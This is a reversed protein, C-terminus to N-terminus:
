YGTATFPVVLGSLDDTSGAEILAAVPDTGDGYFALVKPASTSRNWAAACATTASALGTGVRLDTLASLGLAAVSVPEGETVYAADFTFTGSVQRKTGVLQPPEVSYTLGAM